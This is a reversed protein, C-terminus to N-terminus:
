IKLLYFDAFAFVDGPIVQVKYGNAALETELNKIISVDFGIAKIKPTGVKLRARLNGETLEVTNLDSAKLYVDADEPPQKLQIWTM